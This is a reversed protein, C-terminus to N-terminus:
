VRYITARRVGYVKALHNAAEGNAFRRRAEARQVDNLRSKPGMKVGNERAIM